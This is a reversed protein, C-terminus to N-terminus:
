PGTGPRMLKRVDILQVSTGYSMGRARLGAELDVENIRQGWTQVGVARLKAGVSSASYARQIDADVDFGWLVTAQPKPFFLARYPLTAGPILALMAKQLESYLIKDPEDGSPGLPNMCYLVDGQLYVGLQHTGLFNYRLRSPLASSLVGVSGPRHAAINDHIVDWSSTKNLYNPLTPWCGDAGRNCDDINGGSPGPLDPREAFKRFTTVTPYAITKKSQAAAWVTAVVWCDDVDGASPYTRQSLIPLVM